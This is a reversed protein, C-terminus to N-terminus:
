FKGFREFAELPALGELVANRVASETKVVEEARALVEDRVAAPIIIAGDTDAVVYDGTAATVGGITVEHGFGVIDWRSVADQPTLYRCHVPFGTEKILDVDRCGGDIVVGACGRVQLATASLEGFHAVSEDNAAYVGVHQTPISGLMTLIKRISEDPDMERGQGEVAFVPGALHMGPALPVIEAPLTQNRFGLSDLVDGLAATYVASFREAIRTLAPDQQPQKTAIISDERDGGSHAEPTVFYCSQTVCSYRLGNPDTL